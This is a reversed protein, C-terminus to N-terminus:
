PQCVITRTAAQGFQGSPGGMRAEFFGLGQGNCLVDFEFSQAQGPAVLADAPARVQAQPLSVRMGRQMVLEFPPSTWATTGTNTATVNVKGNAGNRLSTPASDIVITADDVAVYGPDITITAGAAHIALVKISLSNGADTFFAPDPVRGIHGDRQTVVYTLGDKRLERIVVESRPIARDFGTNQRYELLYKVDNPLDVVALLPGPRGPESVPALTIQSATRDAPGRVVKTFKRNAPLWGLADKYGTQLEPGSYEHAEGTPFMWALRYSMIDWNDEYLVYSRANWEHDATLDNGLRRADALGFAHLMEHEYASAYDSWNAVLHRGNVQGADVGSNIVAIFGAYDDPNISVKSAGLSALGATRCDLVTQWRGPNTHSNRVQENIDAAAVRMPFWGLVETGSVDVKGNSSKMFYDYLLDRRAPDFLERFYQVSRQEDPVDSARCLFVLWAGPQSPKLTLPGCGSLCFAGAAAWCGLWGLTTNM